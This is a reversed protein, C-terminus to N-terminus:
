AAEGRMERHEVTCGVCWGTERDLRYRFGGCSPCVVDAVEVVTQRSRRMRHPNPEMGAAALAARWSGFERTAADATPLKLGLERARDAEAVREPSMSSRWSTSTATVDGVAPPRGMQQEFQQFSQIIRDRDWYRNGSPRRLYATM